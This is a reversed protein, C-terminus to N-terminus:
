KKAGLVFAGGEVTQLDIKNGDVVKYSLHPLWKMKEWVFEYLTPAKDPLEAFLTPDFEFVFYLGATSASLEDPELVVFDSYLTDPLGADTEMPNMPTRTALISAGMINCCAKYRVMYAEDQPPLNFYLIEPPNATIDLDTEYVLPLTQKASATRDTGHMGHLAEVYYTLLGVQPFESAPIMFRFLSPDDADMTCTTEGTTGDPYTYFCTAELVDDMNELRVEGKIPKAPDALAPIQWGDFLASDQADTARLPMVVFLLLGFILLYRIM